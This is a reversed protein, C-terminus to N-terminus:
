QINSLRQEKKKSNEKEKKKKPKLEGQRKKKKKKGGSGELLQGPLGLNSEINRPKTKQAVRAATASPQKTVAAILEHEKKSESKSSREDDLSSLSLRSGLTM